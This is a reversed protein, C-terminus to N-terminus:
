FRFMKGRAGAHSNYTPVSSNEGTNQIWLQQSRSTDLAMVHPQTSPLDLHGPVDPCGVSGGSAGRRSWFRLLFSSIRLSINLYELNDSGASM